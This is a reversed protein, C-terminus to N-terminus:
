VCKGNVCDEGNVYDCNFRNVCSCLGCDSECTTCSESADCTGDGCVIPAGCDSSCTIQTEDGECTGDGCVIPASCDDPCDAYTEDTNCTGDGCYSGIPTNSGGIGSGCCTRQYNAGTLGALESISAKGSSVIEKPVNVCMFNPDEVGCGGNIVYNTCCSSLSATATHSTGIGLMPGVFVVAIGLLMLGIILAVIASIPADAAGKRSM